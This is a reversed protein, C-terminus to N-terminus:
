RDIESFAAHNHVLVIGWLLRRLVLAQLDLETRQVYLAFLWFVIAFYILYYLDVPLTILDGFTFSVFFGLVAAAPIWALHSM